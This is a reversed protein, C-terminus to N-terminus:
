DSLEEGKLTHVQSNELLTHLMSFIAFSIYRLAEEVAKNCDHAEQALAGDGTESSLVVRNSEAYYPQQLQPAYENERSGITDFMVAGKSYFLPVHLVIQISGPVAAWTCANWPKMVRQVAYELQVGSTYNPVTSLLKMPLCDQRSILAYSYIQMEFASPRSLAQEMLYKFLREDLINQFYIGEKVYIIRLKSDVFMRCSMHRIHDDKQFYLGDFNGCTAGSM